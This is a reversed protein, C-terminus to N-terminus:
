HSPSTQTDAIAAHATVDFVLRIPFQTLVARRRQRPDEDRPVPRIVPLNSELATEVYLQVAELLM